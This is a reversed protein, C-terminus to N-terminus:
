EVWRMFYESHGSFFVRKLRSRLLFCVLVEILKKEPCGSYKFDENAFAKRRHIRFSIKWKDNM